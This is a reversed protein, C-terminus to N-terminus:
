EDGYRGVAAKLLGVVKERLGAPGVVACDPGYKLIDMILEPDNSYPLRLQYSGDDLFSGQQEPHWHEAAVWRAREPTFVLTAWQVEAGAFIGYGAGLAADLEAEPIDRVAGDIPKVTKIADVAFSRLEDRLHCWADLYWNDRYHTLRQPSIERDSSVGNSRAVYGINLRRREMLAAAIHQFHQPAYHRAAASLIRVRRAIDDASDTASELMGLLRQRLPGIHEALLGGADFAALLQQMSLLAHIEGASFWVGPLEYREVSTDIRYTGTDRDCIIPVQMREKLDRLDRHLTARSVELRQQLEAFSVSRRSLLMREIIGFRESQTM